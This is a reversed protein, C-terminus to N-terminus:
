GPGPQFIDGIMEQHVVTRDDSGAIIGDHSQRAAACSDQAAGASIGRKANTYRPLNRWHECDAAMELVRHGDAYTLIHEEALVDPIEFRELCAVRKLSRDVVETAEVAELRLRHYTIQMRVVAGRM